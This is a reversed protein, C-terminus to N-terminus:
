DEAIFIEVEAKKKLEETYLDTQEQVKREKLYMQLRDKIDEFRETGAPKKDMCQILHYGSQTEVIGSMQGPELAFAAEEFAPAMRGRSFYGLDGGNSSSPCQSFEKALSAFDEGKKLRDQIDGIKKLDEAEQTDEAEPTSKILIHSAKIQEPRKFADTHNDYYSKVEEPSVATKEALQHDVLRKVALERRIQSALEAESVDIGALLQKFADEDPFQKKITNIQENLEEDGIKIGKKQSEQHLLELNILHDLVKKKLDKLQDPPVSRGMNALRKQVVSMEKDFDGQTIVTGNISAVKEDSTQTASAWFSASIFALGAIVALFLFFREHRTKM